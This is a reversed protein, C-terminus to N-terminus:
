CYTGQLSYKYNNPLKKAHQKTYVLQIYITQM